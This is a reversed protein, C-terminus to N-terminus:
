DFVLQFGLCKQMVILIEKTLEYHMNRLQFLITCMIYHSKRSIDTIHTIIILNLVNEHIGLVM